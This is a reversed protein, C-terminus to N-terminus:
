MLTVLNVHKQIKKLPTLTQTREIPQYGSKYIDPQDRRGGLFGQFKPVETLSEGPFFSRRVVGIPVYYVALRLPAKFSNAGKAISELWPLSLTSGAAGKLFTRRNIVSIDNRNM